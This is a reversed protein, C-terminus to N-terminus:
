TETYSILKKGKRLAEKVDEEKYQELIMLKTIRLGKPNERGANELLSTYIEITDRYRKATQDSIYM